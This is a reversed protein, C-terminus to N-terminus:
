EQDLATREVLIELESVETELATFQELKFSNQAYLKRRKNDALDQWIIDYTFDKGTRNYFVIAGWVCTYGLFYTVPEVLNWDFDFFVWKFLVCFQTVLFAFIGWSVVVPHRDAQADLAAKTTKMKELEAKKQELLNVLLRHSKQIGEASLCKDIITQCLPLDKIDM